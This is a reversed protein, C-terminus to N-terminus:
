PRGRYNDPIFELTKNKCLMDMSVVVDVGHMSYQGATIDYVNEQTVQSGVINPVECQSRSADISLDRSPKPFICM